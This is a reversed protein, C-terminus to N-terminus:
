RIESARRRRRVSEPGELRRTKARRTTDRFFARRWPGSRTEMGGNSRHPRAKVRNSAECLTSNMGISLARVNHRHLTNEGCIKKYVPFQRSGQHAFRRARSNGRDLQKARAPMEIVARGLICVFQGPPERSVIEREMGDMRRRRAIEM